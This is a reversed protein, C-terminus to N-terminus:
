WSRCALSERSTDVLNALPLRAMAGIALNTGLAYARRRYPDVFFDRAATDTARRKKSFAIVSLTVLM